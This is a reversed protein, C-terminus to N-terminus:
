TTSSRTGPSTRGPSHVHMAVGGHGNGSFENNSITNDYVGGASGPDALIIGSGASADPSSATGLGNDDSTNGAIANHFIGAGTHDALVIGCGGPNHSATNGLILDYPSPPGFDDSVNIGVGNDKAVNGSVLTGSSSNVDIGNGQNNIAHNKVGIAPLNSRRREVGINGRRAGAPVASM